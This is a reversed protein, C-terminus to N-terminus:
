IVNKTKLFGIIKLRIKDSLIVSRLMMDDSGTEVHPASKFKHWNARATTTEDLAAAVLTECLYHYAANTGEFGEGGDRMLALRDFRKQWIAALILSLRTHSEGPSQFAYAKDLMALGEKYGCAAVFNGLVALIVPDYPNADLAHVSNEKGIPCNGAVFHIRAMAFHAYAEKPDAKISQRALKVAADTREQRETKQPPAEMLYFSLFALRVADLKADANEIALCFSIDGRVRSKSSGAHELYGLLCSYGQGYRGQALRTEHSAIVGFPGTLQAIIPGLSERLPEGPKVRVTSSWLMNSTEFETLRVYLPRHDDSVEGLQVTMRYAPQVKTTDSGPADSLRLRVLWSRGIGDALLAFIDHAIASSRPDSAASVPEILLVPPEIQIPATQLESRPEPAILNYALFAISILLLVTALLVWVTLSFRSKKSQAIDAKPASTSDLNGDVDEEYPPSTVTRFAAADPVFTVPVVTYARALEPYAAALPALRVRYSGPKLFICMHAAPAHRAYFSELLKRLRMVQVRPYSDAQPDFDPDRGLGDVAVTYSKLEDGHGTLTQEVMFTLLRVLTPARAFQRSGLLHDREGRMVAAFGPRLLDEATPDRGLPLAQSGSRRDEM